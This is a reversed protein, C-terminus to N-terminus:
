RATLQVSDGTRIPTDAKPQQTRVVTDLFKPEAGWEVKLGLDCARQMVSVVDMGVFDPTSLPTGPSVYRCVIAAHQPRKTVRPRADDSETNSGLVAASLIVATLLLLVVLARPPREDM